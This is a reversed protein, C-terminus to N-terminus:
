VPLMGLEYRVDTVIQDIAWTLARDNEARAPEKAYNGLAAKVEDQDYPDGSGELARKIAASVSRRWPLKPNCIDQGSLVFLNDNLDRNVSVGSITVCRESGGSSIAKDRERKNMGSWHKVGGEARIEIERNFGDARSFWNTLFRRISRKPKKQSLEWARAKKAEAMLDMSPHADQQLTIWQSLPKGRNVLEGWQENLYKEFSDAEHAHPREDASACVSAESGVKARMRPQANHGSAHARTRGGGRPPASGLAPALGYLGEGLPHLFLGTLGSIGATLVEVPVRTVANLYVPDLWEEEIKGEEDALECLLPYLLLGEWGAKILKPHYFM